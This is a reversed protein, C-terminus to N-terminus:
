DGLMKRLYKAAKTLTGLKDSLTGILAGDAQEIDSMNIGSDLQKPYILLLSQEQFYNSLYGPLKELQSLYSASGKRASIIVFLDDIKLDRSFILFDDWASFVSFEVEVTITKRAIIGKIAKITRASAYFHIPMANLKALTILKGLWHLFGPDNSGAPPIAVVIRTLTNFPQAPKYIYITEFVRKVISEIKPGLFTKHDTEQHLGIVVDTINQEKITYTIGNGINADYRTLPMLINESSSAHDVAKNLIKKGHSASDHKQDQDTVIHLGYLPITNHKAKLMIGFDVLDAIMDPYSLSVLIKENSAAHVDEPNEEEQLLALKKSAREVVFSSVACSVLILVITGNLVDEDLLRIPQGLATEGVIINYGVLIIALTAAAHSSSLGFIMLGENSSLRFVKQTIWAALYKSALAIVLIVGAVKLAGWGHALVSINVLMGVSILFFPIFLANGVFDIRNMLPSSHPVFKNLVLGSFFAGIIAEVGAIEALFSALFVMALVFIYQSISDDFRKFFWRCIMPFVFLVVAVFVIFSFGLRFWFAPSVDGKSMGAVGALILLALIDTIMTGGVTMNIARNRTVGYKSAIPYSVLTHTSFMSALLLSSLFGYGLIYYGALTGSVLPLIFTTLGFVIIKNRNKRFEALDIELGALFMIYLLGVTGFLVISSDRSLLNLGYPGVIMGSIILGIIHPVKIRNFLIPAFLIIFLVVSFIIVPNKLPLSLDLLLLATM